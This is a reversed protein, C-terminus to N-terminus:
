RLCRLLPGSQPCPALMSRPMSRFPQINRNWRLKGLHLRSVLLLHIHAVPQLGTQGCYNINKGILGTIVQCSSTRSPPVYLLHCVTVGQLACGWRLIRAFVFLYPIRM